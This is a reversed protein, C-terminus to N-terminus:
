PLRGAAVMRSFLLGLPLWTVVDDFEGITSGPASFERSVFTNDSDNNEDEDLCTSATACLGLNKGRSLVVAGADNTLLSGTSCTRTRCVILNGTTLLSFPPAPPHYAFLPFVKYIYRGGWPDSDGIGLTVWPLNGQSNTCDGIILTTKVNEIGDGDTDPCPIYGHAVAFGILSEQIQALQREANSIRRQDVQTSLPVLISGLLLAVILLVVALEVLTFGRAGNM